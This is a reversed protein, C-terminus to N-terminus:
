SFKRLSFNRLPKQKQRLWECFFPDEIRYEETRIVVGSKVLRKLSSFATSSAVNKNNLPNESNSLQMLTGKDTNNFNEWLREYDLDHSQIISQISQNVVGEQIYDIEIQNSVEFALQQTYYPHCSSFSLIEKALDEKVPTDPLREVIFQYFDEYPIKNLRMLGGFHYFPSKKREFIELMMGEQSGLFIYNLGSQLQIISRLQKDLHKSIKLVEQFEDFVVILKEKPTSLKQLLEFVDELMTNDAAESTQFGFQYDNTVPNFTITPIIRFHRLEYKIREMPYQALIAKMLQTTFSATSIAYQMDVWVYPRGLEEVCKRVLSSKGYRRPSILILHNESNLFQKMRALENKRDTFYDGQALTGYSFKNAM